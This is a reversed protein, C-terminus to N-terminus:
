RLSTSVIGTLRRQGKRVMAWVDVEKEGPGQGSQGLSDAAGIWNIPTNLEHSIYQLFMSKDQNM